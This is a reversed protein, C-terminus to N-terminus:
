LVKSQKEHAARNVTFEVKKCMSMAPAACYCVTVSATAVCVLCPEPNMPVTYSLLCTLCVELVM